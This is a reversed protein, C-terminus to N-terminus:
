QAVKACRQFMGTPEAEDTSAGSAAEDQSGQDPQEADPPSQDDGAGAGALDDGTAGETDPPVEADTPSNSQVDTLMTVRLKGDALKEISAMDPYSFDQQACFTSALWSKDDHKTVAVFSCKTDTTTVGDKNFIQFDYDKLKSVPTKELQKCGDETSAFTGDPLGASDAALAAGSISVMCALTIAAKRMKEM